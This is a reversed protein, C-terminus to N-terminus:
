AALVLLPTTSRFDELGSGPLETRVPEAGVAPAPAFLCARVQADPHLELVADKAQVLLQPLHDAAASFGPLEPSEAWWVFHPEEEISELRLLLTVEM